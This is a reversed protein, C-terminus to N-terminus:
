RLGSSCSAERIASPVFHFKNPITWGGGEDVIGGGAGAGARLCLSMLSLYLLSSSACLSGEMAIKVLQGHPLITKTVSSSSDSKVKEGGGGADGGLGRGPVPIMEDWAVEVADGAAGGNKAKKSAGGGIIDSGGAAGRLCRGLGEYAGLCLVAYEM